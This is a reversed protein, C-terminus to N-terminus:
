ARDGPQARVVCSPCLLPQGAERPSPNPLWPLYQALLFTWPPLTQETARQRPCPLRCEAKGKSPLPRVPWGVWPQAAEQVASAEPMLFLGPAVGPAWGGPPKCM